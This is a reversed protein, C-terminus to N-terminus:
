FTNKNTIAWYFLNANKKLIIKFYSKDKKLFYSIPYVMLVIFFRFFTGGAIILRYLFGNIYGFNKNIFYYNSKKQMVHAHIVKNNIKVSAGGYHLIIETPLYYINYGKEKIRYCIDVDEAYMFINKDFGGLNNHINKEVMMCAGSLCDIDQSNKHDWYNMEKISFFKSKPFIRHLLFIECFENKLSPFTCACSFQISGDMNLIKPGIAAYNRNNELFVFMGFLANTLLETDPNLYLIYKGKSENAAIHNAKVFGLNEANKIIKFQPFDNEIMEPSGDTSGNDVIIVEYNLNETNKVLSILCNKLMDRTNWNVICVSVDIRTTKM